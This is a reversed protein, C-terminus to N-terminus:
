CYIEKGITLPIKEGLVLDGLYIRKSNWISSSISPFEMDFASPSVEEAKVKAAYSIVGTRRFFEVVIESCFYGTEKDYARKRNEATHKGKDTKWISSAVFAPVCVYTFPKGDINECNLLRNLSEKEHWSGCNIGDVKKQISKSVKKSIQRVWIKGNDRQHVLVPLREELDYLNVGNVGSAELLYKKGDRVVVVAVHSVDSGTAARIIKSSAKDSANLIIDGTKALNEVYYHADFETKNDPTYRKKLRDFSRAEATYSLLVLLILLLLM